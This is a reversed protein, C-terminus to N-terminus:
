FLSFLFFEIQALNNEPQKAVEEKFSGLNYCNRCRIKYNTSNKIFNGEILKWYEAARDVKMFEFDDYKNNGDVPKGGIRVQACFLKSDPSPKAIKLLRDFQLQLNPSFRYLRKFWPRLM